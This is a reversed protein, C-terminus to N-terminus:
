ANLNNMISASHHDHNVSQDLWMLSLGIQSGGGRGVGWQGRIWETHTHRERQGEGARNSKEHRERGSICRILKLLFAQM